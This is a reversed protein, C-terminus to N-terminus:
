LSGIGYTIDIMVDLGTQQCDSRDNDGLVSLNLTHSFQKNMILLLRDRSAESLSMEIEGNQDHKPIRCLNDPDDSYCYANQSKFAARNLARSFDYIKDAGAESLVFDGNTFIALNNLSLVIHDDFRLRQKPIMIDVDCIKM